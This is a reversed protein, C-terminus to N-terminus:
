SEIDWSEGTEDSPAAQANCESQGTESGSVITTPADPPPGTAVIKCTVHSSSTSTTVTVSYFQANPDFPVTYTVTGDISEPQVDHTDADSGYNIDPGCGGGCDPDGPAYGSIIFKVKTIPVITPIPSADTPPAITNTPTAAPSAANSLDADPNDTARHAPGHGAPGACAAASIVVAAVAGTMCLTSKTRKRM